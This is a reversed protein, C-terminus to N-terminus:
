RLSQHGARILSSKCRGERVSGNRKYFRNVYQADRRGPSQMLQLIGNPADSTLLLHVPSTMRVCAHVAAGPKLGRLIFRDNEEAFFCAARKHGRHMIPQPHDALHIRPRHPM